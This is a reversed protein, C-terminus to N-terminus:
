GGVVTQIQVRAVRRHLRYAAASFWINTRTSMRALHFRPILVAGCEPRDDDVGDVIVERFVTFRQGHEDTFGAGVNDRPFHLRGSVALRAARLASLLPNM